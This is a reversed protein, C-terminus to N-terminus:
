EVKCISSGKNQNNDDEDCEGTIGQFYAWTLHSNCLFQQYNRITKISINGGDIFDYYVNPTQKDDKNVISSPGMTPIIDAENRYVSLTHNKVYEENVVEKIFSFNGVRPSAILYTNVSTKGVDKRDILFLSVFLALPSGLSHGGVIIRSKDFWHKENGSVQDKLQNLFTTYFGKHVLQDKSNEYEINTFDFDVNVFDSVTESGRIIIYTDDGVIYIVGIIYEIDKQVVTLYKVVTYKGTGYLNNLGTTLITKIEDTTNKQVDIQNIIALVTLVDTDSGSIKHINNKDLLNIDKDCNYFLLPQYNEYIKKIVFYIIASLVLIALIIGVFIGFIM